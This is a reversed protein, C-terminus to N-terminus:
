KKILGFKISDKDSVIPYIDDATNPIGDIGVSFLTYKEGIKKYEFTTKINNDMKRTLLPDYILVMKDSERLQELSYPYTGKQLKYFEISKVLSNLETQSIKAFGNTANKGYKLNYFVFSYVAVTIILGISGIIVLKRDKYRFIGYFILGLGVFAGILPILCLLGLLYPPKNNKM